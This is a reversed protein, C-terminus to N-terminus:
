LIFGPQQTELALMPRTLGKLSFLILFLFHAGLLMIPPFSNGCLIYDDLSTKRGRHM